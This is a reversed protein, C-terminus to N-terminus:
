YAIEFREGQFDFVASKLRIQELVLGPAVTAREHLLQGNVILM